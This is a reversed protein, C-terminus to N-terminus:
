RQGLRVDFPTRVVLRYSYEWRSHGIAISPLNDIRHFRWEVGVRVVEDIRFNKIFGYEQYRRKSQYFTPNAGVSNYNNDGEDALFDRGWWQITFLDFWGGPRLGFRLWTGHGDSPRGAPANPDINGHSHLRFLAFETSDTYPFVHHIRFGPGSAFNNSVPVGAQFLQGGHHLGHSQFELSLFQLPRGRLLLGYDFIERSAPTNLGQWNIYLESDFVRRRQRWQLGYEIPRTFELTTVELPELYDHRNETVLTGAAALGHASRYRFGLIPKISKLFTSDGSRHDAFAGAVFETHPGPEVALWSQVQAGLITEGTRYPTFFETNDGYFTPLTRLTFTQASAKTALCLLVFGGARMAVMAGPRLTRPAFWSWMPKPSM